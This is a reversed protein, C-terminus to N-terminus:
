TVLASLAPAKFGSMAPQYRADSDQKPVPSFEGHKNMTFFPSQFLSLAPEAFPFAWGM